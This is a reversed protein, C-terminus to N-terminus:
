IIISVTIVGKCLQKILWNKQNKHKIVKYNIIEGIFM